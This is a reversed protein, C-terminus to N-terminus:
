LLRAFCGIYMVEGSRVSLDCLVPTPSMVSTLSFIVNVAVYIGEVM